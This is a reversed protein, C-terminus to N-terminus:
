RPDGLLSRVRDVLFAGILRLKSPRYAASLYKSPQRAFERACFAGCFAYHEGRYDARYPSVTEDVDMGCVPDNKMLRERQAPV